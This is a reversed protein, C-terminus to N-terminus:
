KRGVASLPRKARKQSDFISSRLPKTANWVPIVVMSIGSLVMGVGLLTIDVPKCGDVHNVNCNQPM